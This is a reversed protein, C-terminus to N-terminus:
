SIRVVLFKPISLSDYIFQLMGDRVYEFHLEGEFSGKCNAGEGM